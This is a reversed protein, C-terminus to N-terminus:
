YRGVLPPSPHGIHVFAPWNIGVNTIKEAGGQGFYEWELIEDLWMDWRKMQQYPYPDFHIYILLPM